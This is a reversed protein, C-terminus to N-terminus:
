APTISGSSTSIPIGAKQMRPGFWRFFIRLIIAMGLLIIGTLIADLLILHNRNQRWEALWDDDAFALSIYYPLEGLKQVHGTRTFGDVPSVNSFDVSQVGSVIIARLQESITSTGVKKEPFRAALVFSSHYLAVSGGPGLNFESFKNIIEQIPIASYVAGGFSGDPNNVRRALAILWADSVPGKFPPTIIFKSEPNDRLQIFEPRQSIDVNRNTINKIGYRLSGDPGFIRFGISDPDRLDESSIADLILRDNIKGTKQQKSIESLIALLGLDIQELSNKINLVLVGTLNTAQISLQKRAYERGQFIAIGSLFIITAFISVSAVLLLILSSRRVEVLSSLKPLKRHEL